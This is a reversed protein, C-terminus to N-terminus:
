HVHEEDPTEGCGQCPQSAVNKLMPGIEDNGFMFIPADHRVCWLILSGAKTVGVEIRAYERADQNSAIATERCPICHLFYLSPNM